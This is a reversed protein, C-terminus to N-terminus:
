PSTLGALRETLTATRAPSIERRPLQSDTHVLGSHEPNLIIIWVGGRNGVADANSLVPLFHFRGVILCM